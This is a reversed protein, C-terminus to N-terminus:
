GDLLTDVSLEVGVGVSKPVVVDQRTVTLRGRLIEVRHGPLARALQDAAEGLTLEQQPVAM